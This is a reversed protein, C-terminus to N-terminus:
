IRCVMLYYKLRDESFMSILHQNTNFELLMGKDKIVKVLKLFLNYSLKLTTPEIVTNKEPITFNIKINISNTFYDGDLMLGVYQKTLNVLVAPKHKKLKLRGLLKDYFELIGLLELRDLVIRNIYQVPIIGRKPVDPYNFQVKKIISESLNIKSREENFEQKINMTYSFNDNGIKIFKKESSYEIKSDPYVKIIKKIIDVESQHIYFKHPYNSPEDTVINDISGDPAEYVALTYGDTGYMIYNDKNVRIEIHDICTRFKDKTCCVQCGTLGKVFFKSDLGIYM